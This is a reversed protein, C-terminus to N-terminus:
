NVDESSNSAPNLMEATAPRWPWPALDEDRVVGLAAAGGVAAGRFVEAVDDM